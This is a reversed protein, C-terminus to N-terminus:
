LDLELFSRIKKMVPDRISDKEMLIEHFADKVEIKECFEPRCFSNQREPKVTQDLGAQFLIVPTKFPLRDAKMTAKLSEHVWRATPGGIVLDPYETFLFKSINFRAVSHTYVNKEFTDEDPKYVGYGPAYDSGKGITVLLKSYLFAVKENYPATNMMLMPAVLAAKVFTEPHASLYRVSIGGGMSHSLLYLPSKSEKKVVEEIFQHLDSVYNSFAVVHGKNSDKLLRESEGQGQHDLIFVNAKSDKLDFIVEAYKKAPESRGPLIVLTKTNEPSTKFHYHLRVNQKNYIDGEKMDEFHTLVESKWRTDLQPEPVALAFQSLSLIVLLLTKM